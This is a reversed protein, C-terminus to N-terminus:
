VSKHILVAGFVAKFHRSGFILSGCACPSNKVGPAHSVEVQVQRGDGSAGGPSPLGRERRLAEERERAVRIEREVPTESQPMFVFQDAGGDEEDGEVVYPQVKMQLCPSSM